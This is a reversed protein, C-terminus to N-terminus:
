GARKFPQQYLWLTRGDACAIVADPQLEHAAFELSVLWAGRRLDMAAKQVARPMSEPRQFLYVMDYDGWDALWIDGQRIQAWPCRWASLIRLPWSMELGHLHAQPYAQHLGILGDGLGSGADLVRADAGLPAHSPLERLAERPTPFLPADRWARRPYILWGLLLLAPWLWLPGDWRANAALWSLPFGAAIWLQRMSTGGYRMLFFGWLTALLWALLDPVLGQARLLGYLLWATVWTFLAPLPWRLTKM